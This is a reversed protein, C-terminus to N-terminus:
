QRWVFKWPNKKLDHVMDRLDEYLQPDQMLGGVTGQGKLIDKLMHRTDTLDEEVQHTLLAVSAISQDVRDLIHPLRTHVMSMSSAVQSITQHLEAEHTQILRSTVTVLQAAAHLTNQIEQPNATQQFVDLANLMTEIQHMVIHLHPADMGRVHPTDKFAVGVGPTVDLMSEGVLGQSGVSVQTDQHNIVRWANLDIEALVEVIAGQAKPELAEEPTLLRIKKVVGVSVGSIKVSAGPQLAGTYAFRVSFSQRPQISLRGLVFVFAGLVVIATIIFAIVRKEHNFLAM